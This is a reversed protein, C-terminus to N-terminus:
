HPRPLPQRNPKRLLATVHPPEEGDDATFVIVPIAAYEGIIGATWLLPEVVSSWWLSSM